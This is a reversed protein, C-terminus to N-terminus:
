GNLNDDLTFSVSNTNRNRIEEDDEDIIRINNEKEKQIPTNMVSNLSKADNKMRETALKLRMPIVSSGLNNNEYEKIIDEIVKERLLSLLANKKLLDTFQDHSLQGSVYKSSLEEYPKLIDELREIVLNNILDLLDKPLTNTDNNSLASSIQRYLDVRINESIKNVSKDVTEVLTSLETQVQPKELTKLGYEDIYEVIKAIDKKIIVVKEDLDSIKSKIAVYDRVINKAEPSISSMRESSFSDQGLAELFVDKEDEERQSFVKIKEDLESLRSNSENYQSLLTEILHPVVKVIAKSLKDIQLNDQLNIQSDKASELITSMTEESNDYNNNNVVEQKKLNETESLSFTSSNSKNSNVNLNYDINNDTIPTINNNLDNNKSDVIPM